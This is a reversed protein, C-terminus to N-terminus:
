VRLAEIFLLPFIMPAAVCSFRLTYPRDGPLPLELLFFFYAVVVIVVVFGRRWHHRHMHYPSAPMAYPRM